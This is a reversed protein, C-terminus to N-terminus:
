PNSASRANTLLMRRRSHETTAFVIGGLICVAAIPWPIIEQGSERLRACVTFGLTLALLPLWAYLFSELSLSSERITRRMSEATIPNETSSIMSLLTQSERVLFNGRSRIWLSVLALATSSALLLLIDVLSTAPSPNMSVNRWCMQFVSV